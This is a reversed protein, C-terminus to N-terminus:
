VTFNIEAETESIKQNLVKQIHLLAAEVVVPNSPSFPHGDADELSLKSTMGDTGLRFNTLGKRAVQLAKWKAITINLEEVREMKKELTIVPAVKEVPQVVEIVQTPKVTETIVEAITEEVVETKGPVEIAIVKADVTEVNKVVTLNTANQETAVTQKKALNSMLNKAGARSVQIPM